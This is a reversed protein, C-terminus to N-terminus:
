ILKGEGDIHAVDIKIGFARLKKVWDKYESKTTKLSAKKYFHKEKADKIKIKKGYEKNFEEWRAMIEKAKDLGQVESNAYLMEIIVVDSM